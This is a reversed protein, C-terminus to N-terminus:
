EPRLALLAVSLGPAEPLAIGVIRRYLLLDVVIRIAM